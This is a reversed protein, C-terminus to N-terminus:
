ISVVMNRGFMPNTHFYFVLGVTYNKLIKVVLYGNIQITIHITLICSNKKCKTKLDLRKPTPRGNNIINEKKDFTYLGFLKVLLQEIICKCYNNINLNEGLSCSPLDMKM